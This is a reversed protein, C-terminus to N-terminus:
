GTYRAMPNDEKKWWGALGSSSSQVNGDEAAGLKGAVEEMAGSSGGESSVGGPSREGSSGEGTSGGRTSGVGPPRRERGKPRRRGYRSRYGGFRGFGYSIFGPKPMSDRRDRVVGAVGLVLEIDDEIHQQDSAGSVTDLFLLALQVKVLTTVVKM